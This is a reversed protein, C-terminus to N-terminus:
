QVEIVPLILTLCTGEGPESEIVINGNHNSIIGYVASLGLGAGEGTKKTTYFPDFIMDINEPAIGEGDDIVKIELSKPVSMQLDTLEATIDKTIINSTEIWIRGRGGIAYEANAILNIFVNELQSADAKVLCNTASFDTSIDVEAGLSHKIIKLTRAILEHVDVVSEVYKGKRAFALLHRTLEECRETGDLIYGLYESEKSDKVFKNQLLHAFGMIGNLANNFEHAIGGALQGISKIRQSSNLTDLVRKYKTIDKGVGLLGIIKGQNDRIPVKTSLVWKIDGTTTTYSQEYNVIGKGKAIIEQEIKKFNEAEEPTHIDFDTKGVIDNRRILGAERVMSQSAWLFKLACDKAYIIDPSNDMLLEFNRSFLEFKLNLKKITDINIIVGVLRTARGSADRVKAKADLRMWTNEVGNKLVEFELSCSGIKGTILHYLSKKAVKLNEFRVLKLLDNFSLGLELYELGLNVFCQNSGTLVYSRVDYEFVGVKGAEAAMELAYQSAQLGALLEAEESRNTIFTFAESGSPMIMTTFEYKNTGQRLGVAYKVTVSPKLSQIYRCISGESEYLSFGSDFNLGKCRTGLLEEAAPNAMLFYDQPSSDVRHFILPVDLSNYFYVLNEFNKGFGLRRRTARIFKYYLMVVLGLLVLGLLALLPHIIECLGYDATDVIGFDVGSLHSYQQVLRVYELGREQRLAFVYETFQAARQVSVNQNFGLTIRAAQLPLPVVLITPDVIRAGIYEATIAYDVRATLLATRVADLNDYWFVEVELGYQQIQEIYAYVAIDDAILGIKAGQLGDLTDGLPHTSLLVGRITMLTLPALDFKQANVTSACLYPVCEVSGQELWEITQAYSGSIFKTTIGSGECALALVRTCFGSPEDMENQLPYPYKKLSACLISDTASAPNVLCVLVWVTITAIKQLITNRM